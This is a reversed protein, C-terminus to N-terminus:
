FGSWLGNVSTAGDKDFIVTVKEFGVADLKMIAVTNDPTAGQVIEKASTYVTTETITDAFKSSAVIPTSAAGTQTGLTFTVASLPTPVWLTGASTTVRKWGTIRAKGTDNANGVGFFAFTLYNPAFDPTLTIVGDAGTVPETATPSPAAVSTTTLNAACLLTWNRPLTAMSIENM